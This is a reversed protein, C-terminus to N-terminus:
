RRLVSFLREGPLVQLLYTEHNITLELELM